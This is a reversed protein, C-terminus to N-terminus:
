ATKRASHTLKKVYRNLTEVFYKAPPSLPNRWFAGVELSPFGILSLARLERPFPQSPVRVSLGAGFGMLVYSQILQLSNVEIGPPWDIGRDELEKLFTQTIAERQSLSILTIANRRVEEFVHEANRWPSKALVLLVMPLAALPQSCLDKPPKDLRLSVAVDVQETFLLSLAQTPNAERIRLRLKPFVQQVEAVVKPLHDRLLTPPATISLFQTGTEKMRLELGDMGDFFPAISRYLEEGDPTLAFPRRAFLTKGLSKELQIIQASLAPQQIGYPMRSIAAAIGGHKAVYYFLELHHLNM